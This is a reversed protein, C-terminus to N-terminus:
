RGRQHDEDGVGEGSRVAGDSPRGGSGRDQVASDGGRSSGGGSWSGVDDFPDDSAM